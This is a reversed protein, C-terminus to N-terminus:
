SPFNKLIELEKHWKAESQGRIHMKLVIDKIRQTCALMKGQFRRQNRETWVHYVVATFLFILIEGRAKSATKRKIWEIEEEWSGIHHKEELWQLLTAWITRSYDCVFWMHEMSENVKKGCLVCNSEVTIGWIRLRDVIALRRHLALWLIFQYKPIANSGTTVRKWPSKQCQPRMAIYLQKISFKGQRYYISMDANSHKEIFWNKIDFIKRHWYTQMEFIVSKLLQLRGFPVGLYKFPLERATFQMEELIMEKFERTVGAIYLASKEMNAKLGSRPYYNFDLNAKLSKLTRSLYEMVLVFLYPSIPDGQRLRKKGQFKATLGGNLLLSYSVTTVYEM